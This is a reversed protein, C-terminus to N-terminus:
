RIVRRLSQWLHQVAHMLVFAADAVAFAYELYILVHLVFKSTIAHSALGVIVSGYMAALVCVTLAASYILVHCTLEWVHSWWPHQM